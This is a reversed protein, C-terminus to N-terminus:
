LGVKARIDAPTLGEAPYTAIARADDRKALRKGNEDRILRHHHYTPTPLQLLRQLVVHIATAAFLDQGRVVHTIGQAADDIVVALHYAAGFEQRAVVVDGIGAIMDQATFEILGTEGNPGSGEEIFGAYSHWGGTPTDIRHEFTEARQCALEMDLRLTTNRPRPNDEPFTRELRMKERCTGPYILGDPGIPLAGEQPASLADRIDRRSCTCPYLLGMQWLTDPATEYEVLSDSERRVPKPWTLGLWTLDDYIRAEWDPRARNQDIDDIRLHFTGGAAEAM